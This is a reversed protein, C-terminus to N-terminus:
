KMLEDLQARINKRAQETASPSGGINAGKKVCNAVSAPVVPGLISPMQAYCDAGNVVNPLYVSNRAQDFSHYADAYVDIAIDQGAAKLSAALDACPKAPTWDDAAGTHIRM